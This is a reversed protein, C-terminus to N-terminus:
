SGLGLMAEAHIRMTLRTTTSLVLSSEEPTPDPVGGLSPWCTVLLCLFDCSATVSPGRCESSSHLCGFVFDIQLEETQSPLCTADWPVPATLTRSASIAIYHDDVVEVDM